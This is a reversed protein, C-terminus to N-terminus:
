PRTGDRKEAEAFVLIRRVVEGNMVLAVVALTALPLNAMAGLAILFVRVDRGMRFVQHRAGKEDGGSVDGGEQLRRAMLGDYKDATYSNVFSGIIAAFGILLALAGNASAAGAGPVLSAQWAHWTLGFLLLGDAYRDLVADLWGGFASKMYKLRAVEGDCGDIISAVQALIGGAALAGWGPLAMLFAAVFSLAFSGLTIQNPTIPWKALRRSIARSLPRNLHRAVPGDHPKGDESAMLRREAERLAAPTDVDLWQAGTVDAALARDNEILVAMADSLGHGGRRAAEELAAFLGRTCLFLGTDVAEWDAIEKGIAALRFADPAERLRVKTADPEDFLAARNRDVALRVAGEPVGQTALARALRPSILHDVMALFFPEDAESVFPAAALASTGNGRRWDPARAFTMEFGWRAGIERFHQEVVDAEHGLTVVFRSIGLEFHFLALTREALTLGLVPTLPKPQGAAGFLRSGEGAALIVALRPITPPAAPEEVPGRAAQSINRSQASHREAMM